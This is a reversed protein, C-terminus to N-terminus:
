TISSILNIKRTLLFYTEENIGKKKQHLQNALQFNIDNNCCIPVGGCWLQEMIQAKLSRNFTNQFYILNNNKL